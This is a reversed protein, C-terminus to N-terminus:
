LDLLLLTEPGLNAALTKFPRYEAHTLNHSFSLLHADKQIHKGLIYPVLSYYNLSPPFKNLCGKSVIQASRFKGSTITYRM